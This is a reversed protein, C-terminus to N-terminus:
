NWNNYGDDLEIIKTFGLKKMVGMIRKSEVGDNSYLLYMMDKPMENLRQELNEDKYIFLKSHSIHGQEHEQVTRLELLIYEETPSNLITKFEENAVSRIQNQGFSTQFTLSFFVILLTFLIKM